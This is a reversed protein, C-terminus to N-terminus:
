NEQVYHSLSRVPYWHQKCSESGVIEVCSRLQIRLVNYPRYHLFFLGNKFDFNCFHEFVVLIQCKLFNVRVNCLPLTKALVVFFKPKEVM